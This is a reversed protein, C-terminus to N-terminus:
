ATHLQMCEEYQIDSSEGEEVVDDADDIASDLTSSSTGGKTGNKLDYWRKITRAPIQSYYNRGKLISVTAIAAVKSAFRHEREM